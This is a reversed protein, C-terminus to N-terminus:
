SRRTAAYDKIHRLICLGELGEHALDSRNRAIEMCISIWCCDLLVPTM